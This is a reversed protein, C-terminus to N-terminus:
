QEQEEVGPARRLREAVLMEVGGLLLFLCTGAFSGAAWGWDPGLALGAVAAAGVALLVSFYGLASGLVVVEPPDGRMRVRFGRSAIGETLTFGIAAGLAFVFVDVIGSPGLITTLVGFSATIMVSYAYASANNGLSARVARAYARWLGTRGRSDAASRDAAV